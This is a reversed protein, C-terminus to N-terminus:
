VIKNHGGCATSYDATAGNPDAANVESTFAELWETEPLRDVVDLILRVVEQHGKKGACKLATEGNVDEAHIVKRVAGTREPEPISNLIALLHVVVARQDGQAALHLATRGDKDSITMVMTVDQYRISEPWTGLMELMRAVIATQGNRAASLIPFAQLLKRVLEQGGRAVYAYSLETEGDECLYDMVDLIAQNRSANEPAEPLRKLAGLIEAVMMECSELDAVDLAMLVDERARVLVAMVTNLRAAKSVTNLRLLVDSFPVVDTQADVRAGDTNPFAKTLLKAIQFHGRLHAQAVPTKGLLDANNVLAAAWPRETKALRHLAALLRTVAKDHGFRAAMYLPTRGFRDQTSLVMKIVQSKGPEKLTSLLALIEALDISQGHRAVDLLTTKMEKSAILLELCEVHGHLAAAHLPTRGDNDKENVKIGDGVLLAMVTETNGNHAALHLATWGNNTKENVEIGAKLLLGVTDSYGNCAAIHLATLGNNDKEKIEIGAKLLLEVTESHGNCAAVHLATGGDNDKEKVEIGAKLLLKVTDSHGNCAGLHLATSGNNTKGSVEISDADLLANVTETNGNCAAIHLPTYRNRTKVNIGAGRALLEKLCEAGERSEAAMHLATRGRKAAINIDARADLLLTLYDLRGWLAAIMLPTVGNNDSVDIMGGNDILEQLCETGNEKNFTYREPTRGNALIKLSDSGSAAWQLPVEAIGIKTAFHLVTEGNKNTAVLHAGSEILTRLCGVHGNYAALHLATNGNKNTADVNSGLEVLRQLCEHHGHEAALHLPTANDTRTCDNIDAGKELLWELCEMHGNEVALHLPMKGDTQVLHTKAKTNCNKKLAKFVQHSRKLPVQPDAMKEKRASEIVGIVKDCLQRVDAEADPIPIYGFLTRLCKHDGNRAAIHVPTEGNTKLKKNVDGGTAVLTTLCDVNGSRTAIHLPTEGSKARAANVDAGKGSKYWKSVSSCFGGASGILAILAEPRGRLFSTWAASGSGLILDMVASLFDAKEGILAQVCPKHGNCIAIHLPATGDPSTANVNAGDDIVRKLRDVENNKAADFLMRVQAVPRYRSDPMINDITGQTLSDVQAGSSNTDSPLAKPAIEGPVMRGKPEHYLRCRHERSKGSTRDGGRQSICELHVFHSNSRCISKKLGRDSDASQCIACSPSILPINSCLIDNM